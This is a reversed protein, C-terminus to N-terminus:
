TRRGAKEPLVCKNLSNHTAALATLEAEIEEESVTINEEERHTSCSTGRLDEDARAHLM